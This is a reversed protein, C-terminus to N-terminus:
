IPRGNPTTAGRWAAGSRHLPGRVCSRDHRACTATDGSRLEGPPTTVSSPRDGSRSSSRFTGANGPIPRPARPSRRGRRAGHVAEPRRPGRM